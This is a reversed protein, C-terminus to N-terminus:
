ITFPLDANTIVKTVPQAALRLALAEATSKATM